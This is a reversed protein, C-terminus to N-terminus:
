CFQKLEFLNYIGILFNIKEHLVREIIPHVDLEIHNNQRFKSKVNLNM